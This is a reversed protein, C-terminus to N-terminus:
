HLAFGSPRRKAQLISFNSVKSNMSCFQITQTELKMNVTCVHSHSQDEGRESVVFDILWKGFYWVREKKSQATFTLTRPRVPEDREDVPSIMGAFQTDANILLSDVDSWLWCSATCSCCFRCCSWGWLKLWAGLVYHPPGSPKMPTSGMEVGELECGPRFPDSEYTERQVAPELVATGRTRCGWAGRIDRLTPPTVGLQSSGWIYLQPQVSFLNWPKRKNKQKKLDGSVRTRM